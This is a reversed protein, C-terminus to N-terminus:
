GLGQHALAQSRGGVALERWWRGLGVGAGEGGETAVSGPRMGRAREAGMGSQAILAQTFPSVRRPGRANSACLACLHPPLSSGPLLDPAASPIGPMPGAPSSTRRFGQNLLKYLFVTTATRGRGNNQM